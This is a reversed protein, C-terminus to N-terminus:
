VRPIAKCRDSVSGTGNEGKTTECMGNGCVASQMNGGSGCDAACYGVESAACVAAAM